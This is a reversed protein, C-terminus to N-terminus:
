RPTPKIDTSRKAHKMTIWFQMAWYLKTRTLYYNQNQWTMIDNHCFPKEKYDLYYFIIIITLYFIRFTKCCISTLPSVNQGSEPISVTTCNFMLIHPCNPKNPYKPSSISSQLDQLGYGLWQASQATGYPNSSSINVMGIMILLLKSNSTPLLPQWLSVTFMNIHM